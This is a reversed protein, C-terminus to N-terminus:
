RRIMWLAMLKDFDAEKSLDAEACRAGCSQKSRPNRASSRKAPFSMSAVKLNKETNICFYRSHQSPQPIVNDFAKKALGFSLFFSLFSRFFLGSFCVETDFFHLLTFRWVPM